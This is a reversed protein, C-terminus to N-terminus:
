THIAKRSRSTKLSRFSLSTHKIGGWKQDCSYRYTERELHCQVLISPHFRDARHEHDIQLYHMASCRTDFSHSGQASNKILEQGLQLEPYGLIVLSEHHALHHRLNFWKRDSPVRVTRMSTNPDDLDSHHGRCALCFQHVYTCSRQMKVHWRAQRANVPPSLPPSPYGPM